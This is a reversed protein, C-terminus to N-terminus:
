VNKNKAEFQNIVMLMNVKRPNLGNRRDWVTYGTSSFLRESPVSTVQYSFLPPVVQDLDNKHYKKIFLM